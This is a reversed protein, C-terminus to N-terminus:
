RNITIQRLLPYATLVMLVLNITVGLIVRVLSIGLARLFEGGQLAYEYASTTFDVPFFGVKGASVAASGSFSIALLNVFPLVCSLCVLTLFTCNIINFIKSGLTKHPM